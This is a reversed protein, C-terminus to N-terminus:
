IIKASIRGSEVKVEYITLPKQGKAAIGLFSLIRGFFSMLGKGAVWRVVKGTRVDFQSGHV